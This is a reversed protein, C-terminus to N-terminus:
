PEPKGRRMFAEKELARGSNRVFMLLIDFVKPTLSVPANQRLLLREAPVLRFPGFEYFHGSPETTM